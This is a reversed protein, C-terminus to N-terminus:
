NVFEWRYGYAHKIRGHLCASINGHNNQPLGLGELAENISNWKKIVNNSDDIQYISKRKSLSLNSNHNGYNNNYGKTCWELNEVRNDTRVENKHNIESFNNPNPVFAEAVVRHWLRQYAKGNKYLTIRYYGYTDLIPKIVKGKTLHKVGNSYTIVRTMSKIRGLNSVQYIGEFNKIDRWEEM